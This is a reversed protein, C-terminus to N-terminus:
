AAVLRGAQYVARIRQPLTVVDLPDGDVVVVDAVKGPTLTGVTDEIGILEAAVRTTALLTDVPAMGCEVLLALEELNRGHPMVGSDTGMAVKVGAAIARTISSFHEEIVMKTKTVAEPPVAIGAAAAELVGRPAMLTPVLYTGRDLMMQIAEDDLFIGHEISRIGNRVAAKIGDTAQAHAMVHIGAATAEEVLVSLEADRFHGHRPDDRPSLVGGSTCVKIVEAGARVLERVKRRMEDPGDVINDPSGPHPITFRPMHAGCVQWSDGHGGTQSLATISITTRPGTILGRDRATKVGLDTGGADRASTIGAALTTRMNEAAQFFRLSFPTRVGTMPDLDGSAMFHVHCDIFGPLVTAGTCDVGDDGDLGPGVDVIRGDVVVVDGDAVATGTADFVQGGHFVTRM